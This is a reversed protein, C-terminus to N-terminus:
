AAADRKERFSKQLIAEKQSKYTSGAEGANIVNDGWNSDFYVEADNLLKQKAATVNALGSWAAELTVCQLKLDGAVGVAYKLRTTPSTQPQVHRVTVSCCMNWLM